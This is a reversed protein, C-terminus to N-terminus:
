ISNCKRKRKRLERILCIIAMIATGASLVSTVRDSNMFSYISNFISLIILLIYMVIILRKM